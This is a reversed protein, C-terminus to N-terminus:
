QDARRLWAGLGKKAPDALDGQVSLIAQCHPCLFALGRWAAAGKATTGLGIETVIATGVSKQCHPCKGTM